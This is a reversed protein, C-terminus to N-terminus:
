KIAMQRMATAPVTGVPMYEGEVKPPQKMSPMHSLWDRRPGRVDMDAEKREHSIREM